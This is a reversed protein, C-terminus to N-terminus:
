VEVAGPGLTVCVGGVCGYGDGPGFVAVVCGDVGRVDSGIFCLGFEQARQAFEVQPGFRGRFDFRSGLLPRRPFSLAQPPTHTNSLYAAIRLPTGTAGPITTFSMIRM